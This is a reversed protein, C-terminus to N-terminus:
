SRCCLTASAPTHRVPRRAPAQGGHLPRDYDAALEMFLDHPQMRGRDVAGRQVDDPYRCPRRRPKASGDGHGLQQQRGTSHQRRRTPASRGTRLDGPPLDCWEAAPGLRAVAPARRVDANGAAAMGHRVNRPHTDPTPGDRVCARARRSPANGPAAARVRSHTACPNREGDPAHM